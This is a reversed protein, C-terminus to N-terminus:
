RLGKGIQFGKGSVSSTVIFMGSDADWLVGKSRPRENNPM